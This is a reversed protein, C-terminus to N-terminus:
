VIAAVVLIIAGTLALLVAFVMNVMATRKLMRRYRHWAEVATEGGATGDERVNALVFDLATATHTLSGSGGLLRQPLLALSWLLGAGENGESTYEYSAEKRLREGADSRACWRAFQFPHTYVWFAIAFVITFFGFWTVLFTWDSM